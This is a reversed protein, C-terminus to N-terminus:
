KKRVVIVNDLYLKNSHPLLFHKLVGAVNNYMLATRRIMRGLCTRVEVEEAWYVNQFRDRICM